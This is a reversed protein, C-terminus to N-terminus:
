TISASFVATASDERVPVHGLDIPQIQELLQALVRFKRAQHHDHDGGLGFQVLHRGGQFRAGVFVDHLWEGFLDEHLLELKHPDMRSSPAPMAAIFLRNSWGPSRIRTSTTSSETTM